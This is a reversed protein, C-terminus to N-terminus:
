YLDFITPIRICYYSLNRDTEVNRSKPLKVERFVASNSETPVRAEIDIHHFVFCCYVSQNPIWYLWLPPSRAVNNIYLYIILISLLPHVACLLLLMHLQLTQIVSHYRTRLPLTCHVPNGRFYSTICDVTTVLGICCCLCCNLNGNCYKSSVFNTLPHQQLAILCAAIWAYEYM